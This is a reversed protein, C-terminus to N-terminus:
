GNGAGAGAHLGLTDRNRRNTRGTSLCSERAGYNNNNKNNNTNTRTRGHTHTQRDFDRGSCPQARSALMRACVPIVAPEGGSVAMFRKPMTPFCAPTVRLARQQPIAARSVLPLSRVHQM